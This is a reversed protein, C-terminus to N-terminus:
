LKKEIEKINWHEENYYSKREFYHRLTFNKYSGLSLDDVIDYINAINKNKHKRLFRGLSQILIIFSKGLPEAFIGNKLNKINIGTSFTKTSAFLIIGNNNEFTSRIQNRIDADISGDIYHTNEYFELTREYLDTGFEIRNFFIITNEKKKIKSKVLKLIFDKKREHSNIFELERQWNGLKKVYTREEMNYNLKLASINLPTAHGTDVLEKASVIDIPEGFLGILKQKDLDVKPLTGTVGIKYEATTIGQVIKTLINAKSTHCEDVIITNFEQEQVVKLDKPKQISQWTTVWIGCYKDPEKPQGGHIMHINDPNDYNYSLFDSYMQKVLTVTPVVILVKGDDELIKRTFMYIGLSKGSNTASVLLVRKHNLKVNFSKIQYDRPTIDSPLNLSKIFHDHINDEQFDETEDIYEINYRELFIKLQPLLGIPFKKQILNYLGEKGDWAGMKYKPMFKYGPVYYSFYNYIQILENRDDSTVKIFSYDIPEIQIM